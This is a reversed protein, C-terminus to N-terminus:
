SLVRRLLLHSGQIACAAKPRMIEEASYTKRGSLDSATQRTVGLGPFHWQASQAGAYVRSLSLSIAVANLRRAARSAHDVPEACQRPYM